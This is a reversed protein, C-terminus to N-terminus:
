SCCSIDSLYNPQFPLLLQQLQVQVQLHQNRLDLPQLAHDLELVLGERLQLRHQLRLLLLQVEQAVLDVAVLVLLLLQHLLQGDHLALVHVVVLQVLLVDVVHGVLDDQGHLDLTQAM